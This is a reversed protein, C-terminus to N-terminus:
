QSIILRMACFTAAYGISKFVSWRYIQFQIPSVRWVSWCYIQFRIPSVRAVSYLINKKNESSNGNIFWLTSISPSLNYLGGYRQQQKLVDLLCILFEYLFENKKVYKGTHSIARQRSISTIKHFPFVRFYRFDSEIISFYATEFIGCLCIM